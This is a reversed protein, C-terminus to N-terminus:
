SDQTGQALPVVAINGLLALAIFVLVTYYITLPVRLWPHVIRKPKRKAATETQEPTLMPATAM